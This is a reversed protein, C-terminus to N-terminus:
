ILERKEQESKLEEFHSIYSKRNKKYMESFDMGRYYEILEALENDTLNNIAKFKLSDNFPEEYKENLIETAKEKAPINDLETIKFKNKQLEKEGIISLYEEIISADIEIAGKGSKHRDNGNKKVGSIWYNIGTELDFYNSSIGKGKKYINGNFYITQKTKSFFCKGIWAKGDHNTETKNEVYVIESKM